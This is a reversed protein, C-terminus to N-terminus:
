DNLHSRGELDANEDSPVTSYEAKAEDLSSAGGKRFFERVKEFYQRYVLAGLVALFLAGLALQQRSSVRRETSLLALGFVLVGVLFNKSPMSRMVFRLLAGYSGGFLYSTTFYSDILIRILMSVINAVIQGRAGFGSLLFCALLYLGTSAGVLIRYLGASSSPSTTIKPARSNASNM